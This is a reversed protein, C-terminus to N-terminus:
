RAYCDSAIRQPLSRIRMSADIAAEDASRLRDVRQGFQRMQLAESAEIYADGVLRHTVADALASSEGLQADRQVASFSRGDQAHQM